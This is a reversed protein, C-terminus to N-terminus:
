RSSALAVPANEDLELRLYDYCVGSTLEGAPVTLTMENEGEKLLTADFPQAYEHWVGRDTNYRLANTAVPKIIGVPKGNVGIALGGQGDAGGLAVRLTAKGQEAKDMNFKITWTTARGRGITRWMDQGPTGLKMWGYRQNTPDKADPNLWSTNLEHPVEEFFWDKHYDSKGVTYTIDNPFLLAYRLCWGWYSYDDGKFFEGGNRNPYGIEWVQKGYRVPKWAISGLDLNKGAEVTVNAQEFEGLVGDAFAHLTYTGPRISPITFKGDDTGDTWFQYYNGDHPWKVMNGDGSRQTYGRAATPYDPHALGVTLGPLKTSAAQSDDLVFQGTVTGRESKHPYDVGDVWDYPWSAKVQKAEAQADNWLAYANDHWSAPVVPDGQSAALADLEAKTTEKPNELANFYVFIPGIVKKWEQGAAVRAQAGGSYHGSMWYDQISNNSEFSWPGIIDMKEAGGSIYENSPNILYVGVHDKTSSFGWATLRYMIACYSYKHEVSNRFYGSSLIKQEKAHIVVGTRLDAFTPVLMNRDGDVSFWDFNPDAHFVFQSEPMSAAGYSAPHSFEAYAYFGSVGRELTYRLEIDLNITSKGKVSVEAREGGNKAPDITVSATVPSAPGEQWTPYESGPKTAPWHLTDPLTAVSPRLTEINHYIVSLLSGTEKNVWVTLIGNNLIWAVGNDTITVPSNVSPKAVVPADDAARLAPTALALSLIASALLRRSIVFLPTKM